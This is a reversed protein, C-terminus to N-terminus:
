DFDTDADPSDIEHERIFEEQSKREATLEKEYKKMAKAIKPSLRDKKDAPTTVDVEHGEGGDGTPCAGYELLVEYPTRRKKGVYRIERNGWELHLNERPEVNLFREIVRMLEEVKCGFAMVHMYNTRKEGKVEVYSSFEYDVMGLVIIGTKKLKGEWKNRFEHMGEM